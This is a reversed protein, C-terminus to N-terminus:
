MKMSNPPILMALEMKVSKRICSTSFENRYAITSEPSGENVNNAKFYIMIADAM